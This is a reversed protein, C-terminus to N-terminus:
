FGPRGQLGAPHDAEGKTKAPDMLATQVRGQPHGARGQWFVKLGLM